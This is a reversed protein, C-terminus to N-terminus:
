RKDGKYVAFKFTADDIVVSTYQIIEVCELRMKDLALQVVNTTMELGNDLCTVDAGILTKGFGYCLEASEFAKVSEEYTM